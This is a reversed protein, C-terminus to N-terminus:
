PPFDRKCCVIVGLDLYTDFWFEASWRFCSKLKKRSELEVWVLVRGTLNKFM